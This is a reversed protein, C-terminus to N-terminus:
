KERCMCYMSVVEIDKFGTLVLNKLLECGIGGAGVVLIKSNGCVPVFGNRVGQSLDGVNGGDQFREGARKM